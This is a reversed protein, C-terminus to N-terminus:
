TLRRRLLFLGLAILALAACAALPWTVPRGEGAREFATPPVRDAPDPSANPGRSMELIAGSQTDILYRVVRPGHTPIESPSQYDRLTVAWVPEWMHRSLQVHPFFGDTNWDAEAIAVAQDATIIPEPDAPTGEPLVCQGYYMLAGGASVSGGVYLVRDGLGDAPVGAVGFGDGPHEGGTTSWVLSEADKGIMRRAEAAVTEIAEEASVEGPEEPPAGRRHWSLVRGRTADVKWVTDTEEILFSYMTCNSGIQETSTPLAPVPANTWKEIMARCEPVSLECQAAQTSLALVVALGIRICDLSM